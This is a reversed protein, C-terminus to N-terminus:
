RPRLTVGGSGTDITMMGQGDGLRGRLHYRRKQILQIPTSVNIGGSGTDVTLDAGLDSPLLVTVSGSGTDLRATRVDTLLELTISGSGTDLEVDRTNVHHARIGGSGTNLRMEPASAGEVRISGSGTDIDLASVELSTADVGGSGTDIFLTGNGVDDARVSGSGTDIRVHGRVAAVSVGGSGTTILLSGNVGHADVSGSRAEARVHGDVNAVNIGGVGLHLAVTRGEPVLVRLDAWAELGSGTSSVRVRGDRSGLRISSPVAFGDETLRARLMRGGFTGDANVDFETRSFRGMRPYVIRDAPYQIFLARWGDVDSNRVTLRDADSGQRMVEVVVASGTGREIRVEGALNFIAVQEGALSFREPAQAVAASGSGFALILGVGIYRM